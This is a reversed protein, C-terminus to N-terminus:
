VPGRSGIRFPRSATQLSFISPKFRKFLIFAMSNASILNKKQGWLLLEQRASECSIITPLLSHTPTVPTLIGILGCAQTRHAAWLGRLGGFSNSIKRPTPLRTCACSCKLMIGCKCVHLWWVQACGFIDWMVYDQPCVCARTCVYVSCVYWWVQMWVGSMKMCDTSVCMSVYVCACISCVCIMVGIHVYVVRMWMNRHYCTVVDVPFVHACLRCVCSRLQVCWENTHVCM